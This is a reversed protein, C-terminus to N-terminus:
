ALWMAVFAVVALLVLGILIRGVNLMRKRRDNDDSM